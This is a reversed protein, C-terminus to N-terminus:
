VKFFNKKLSHFFSLPIKWDNKSNVKLTEEITNGKKRASAVKIAETHATPKSLTPLKWKAQCYFIIIVANNINCLCLYIYTQLNSAHTHLDPIYLNYPQKAIRRITLIMDLWQVNGPFNHLKDPGYIYEREEDRGKEKGREERFSSRRMVQRM